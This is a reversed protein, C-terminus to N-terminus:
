KRRAAGTEASKRPQITRKEASAMIAKMGGQRWVGAQRREKAAQQHRKRRGGSKRGDLAM